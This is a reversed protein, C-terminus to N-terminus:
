RTTRPPCPRPQLDAGRRQVVDLVAAVVGGVDGREDGIADDAAVELRHARSFM